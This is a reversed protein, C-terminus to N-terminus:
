SPEQGSRVWLLPQRVFYNRIIEEVVPDPDLRRWLALYSPEGLALGGSHLLNARREIGAIVSRCFPRGV